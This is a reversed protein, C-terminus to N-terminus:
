DKKGRGEIRRRIEGKKKGGGDTVVKQDESAENDM